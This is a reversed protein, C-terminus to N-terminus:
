DSGEATGGGFVDRGKGQANRHHTESSIRQLENLRYNEAIIDRVFEDIAGFLWTLETGRGMSTTIREVSREIGISINGVGAHLENIVGGMSILTHELEAITRRQEAILEADRMADASSRGGSFTQCGTFLFMICVAYLIRRFLKEM